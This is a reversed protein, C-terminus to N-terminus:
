KINEMHWKYAEPFYEKIYQLQTEKQDEKKVKEIRVYDGEKIYSNKPITVLKQGTEKNQYVKKIEM